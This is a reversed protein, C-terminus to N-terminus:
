SCIYEYIIYVFFFFYVSEFLSKEKKYKTLYKDIKHLVCIILNISSIKYHKFFICIYKYFFTSM